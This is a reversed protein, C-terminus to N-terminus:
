VVDRREVTPDEKRAAAIVAAVVREALFDEAGLGTEGAGALHEM